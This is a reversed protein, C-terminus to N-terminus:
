SLYWGHHTVQGPPVGSGTRGRTNCIPASLGLSPFHGIRTMCRTLPLAPDLAQGTARGGSEASGTIAPSAGWTLTDRAPIEQRDGSGGAGGGVGATSAQSMHQAQPGCVPAHPQLPHSVLWRPAPCAGQSQGGGGM